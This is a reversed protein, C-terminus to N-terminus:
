KNDTQEKTNATETNSAEASAEPAKDDGVLQTEIKTDNYWKLLDVSAGASGAEETKPSDTYKCWNKLLFILVSPIQVAQQLALNVLEKEGEVRKQEMVASIASNYTRKCWKDVTKKDAGFFRAIAEGSFHNRCLEEFKNKDFEKLPRIRKVEKKVEVSDKKTKKAPTKKEAM